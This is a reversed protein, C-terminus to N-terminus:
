AASVCLRAASSRESTGESERWAIGRPAPVQVSLALERGNRSDGGHGFALGGPRCAARECSLLERRTSPSPDRCGLLAPAWPSSVSGAAQWAGPTM